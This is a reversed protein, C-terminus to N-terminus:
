NFGFGHGFVDEDECDYFRESLDPQPLNSHEDTNVALLASGLAVQVQGSGSSSSITENLLGGSLFVVPKAFDSTSLLDKTEEVGCDYFFHEESSDIVQERSIVGM